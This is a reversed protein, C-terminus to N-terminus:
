GFQFGGICWPFNWHVKVDDLKGLFSDVEMVVNLGYVGLFFGGGIM